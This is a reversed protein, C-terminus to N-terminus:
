LPSITRSRPCCRRSGPPESLIEADETSTASALAVGSRQKRVVTNREQQRGVPSEERQRAVILDNRRYLLLDVPHARGGVVAALDDVGLDGDQVGRGGEIPPGERALPAVATLDAAEGRGIEHGIPWNAAANGHQRDVARSQEHRGAPSSHEHAVARLRWFEHSTARAHRPRMSELGRVARCSVRRIQGAIVGGNARDLDAPEVLRPVCTVAATDRLASGAGTTFATLYILLLGAGHALVAVALAAIVVARTIDVVLMLRRRDTRDVIVGLGAGVLLWPLGQV